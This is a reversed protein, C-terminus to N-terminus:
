SKCALKMIIRCHPISRVPIVLMMTFCLCLTCGSVLVIQGSTQLMITVASVPTAGPKKIETKFRSLMFLSYDISMALATAVMMSPAM